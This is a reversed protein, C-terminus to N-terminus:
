SHYSQHTHTKRIKKIVVWRGIKWEEDKNSM